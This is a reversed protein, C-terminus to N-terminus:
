PRQGGHDEGPHADVAKVSLYELLGGTQRGPLGMDDCHGQGDDGSGPGKEDRHPSFLAEGPVLNGGEGDM